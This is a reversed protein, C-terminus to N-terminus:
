FFWNKNGLIRIHHRIRCANIVAAIECSRRISFGNDFRLVFIIGVPLSVICSSLRLMIGFVIM